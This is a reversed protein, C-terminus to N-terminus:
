GREPGVFRTLWASVAGDLGCQGLFGFLYRAEREIGVVFIPSDTDTADHELPHGYVCPSILRISDAPGGPRRPPPKLPQGCRAFVEWLLCFRLRNATITLRLRGKSASGRVSLVGIFNPKSCVIRGLPRGFGARFPPWLLQKGGNDKGVLCM